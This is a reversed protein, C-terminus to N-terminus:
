PRDFDVSVVLTVINYQVKGGVTREEWYSMKRESSSIYRGVEKQQLRLYSTSVRETAMM